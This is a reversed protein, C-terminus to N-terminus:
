WGTSGPYSKLVPRLLFRKLFGDPWFKIIIFRAGLCVIGFIFLAVFPKLILAVWFM